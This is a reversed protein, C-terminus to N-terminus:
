LQKSIQHYLELYLHYMHGITFNSEFSRRADLCSTIYIDPNDKYYLIKDVLASANNDVCFGNRTDLMESIGGVASAIVPIGASLAELISMPLGEYNTPLLLLSAYKLARFGRDIEGMCSVNSPLFAISQQNGIWVFHINQEVLQRATECFLDFRKQPNLRAITMVVFYGSNKLAKVFSIKQDEEDDEIEINSIDEVGNYILSVNKYIGENKLNEQDYRSVAVIKKAKGKLLKELPLYKRFAVRISDFGHVTYILRSSPFALRGLIGIKSSHLHIVDPTYAKYTKRLQYIVSIERLLNIKRALQRIRIQKAEQPLQGWMPGQAESIVWVTHGDEVAKRTLNLVVSQAGGLDALTIVQFIKM